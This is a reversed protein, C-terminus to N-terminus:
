DYNLLQTKNPIANWLDLRVSKNYDLARMGHSTIQFYMKPRGGRATSGEGKRSTLYGKDQMRILATQLAGISVKRGLRESIEEKISFGYADQDLVAVTLLVIEEFEGLPYKKM